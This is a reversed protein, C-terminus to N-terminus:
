RICRRLVGSNRAVVGSASMLSSSMIESFGVFPVEEGDLVLDGEDRTDDVDPWRTRRMTAPRTERNKMVLIKIGESEDGSSM